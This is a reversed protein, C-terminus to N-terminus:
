NEYKYDKLHVALKKLLYFIGSKVSGEPIGMVGSVEKIELGEVFRLLYIQKEKESMEKMCKELDNRVFKSDLNFGPHDIPQQIPADALIRLRNQDNRISNKCANGTVTYVWTSFKRSVDFAAPKEIITVFVDQVLDEAQGTNKVFGMAYWVLKDFYRDYLTEFADRNGATIMLMLQEDSVGAFPM